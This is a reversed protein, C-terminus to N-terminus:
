GGQAAAHGGTDSHCIEAYEVLGSFVGDLEETDKFAEDVFTAASAPHQPIPGPQHRWFAM